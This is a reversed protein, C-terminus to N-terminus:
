VSPATGRVYKTHQALVVVEEDGEDGVKVIKVTVFALSGGVREATAEVRVWDGARATALYSLHMDVSAGTTERGDWSAIALGTVFDVVTASVAGHLAGKSNAHRDTLQLRTTVSGRTVTELEMASLAFSYIASSAVLRELLAQVQGRRATQESTNAEAGAGWTPPHSAM